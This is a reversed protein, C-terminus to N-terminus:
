KMGGPRFSRNQNAPGLGPSPSRSGGSRSSESSSDEGLAESGGLAGGLADLGEAADPDLNGQLPNTVYQVVELQRENRGEQWKVVVTLRRISAELMPKLTPYVLGMAMTMMGGQMESGFSEAMDGLDEIGLDGQERREKMESLATLPNSDSEDSDLTELSDTETLEPLLVREITWSCSFDPDDEDDCCPGDEALDTYPYGDKLLQLELESMRCRAHNTAYTVNHAYKAGSYVGAHSSLIATLGLGLISIAVIVELLTFARREPRGSARSRLTM